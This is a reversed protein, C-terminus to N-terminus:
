QLPIEAKWFSIVNSFDELMDQFERFSRIVPISMNVVVRQGAEDLGLYAKRTAQGLFNGRLITTLTQEMNEDLLMGLTATYDVGPARDFLTVSIGDIDLSFSNLEQPLSAGDQLSLEKLLRQIYERFM